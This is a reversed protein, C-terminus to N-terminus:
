TALLDFLVKRLSQHYADSDSFSEKKKQIIMISDAM